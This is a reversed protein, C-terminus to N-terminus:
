TDMSSRTWKDHRIKSTHVYQLRSICRANVGLPLVRPDAHLVVVVRLLLGVHGASVHRALPHRGVHLGVVPHHEPVCELHLNSFDVGKIRQKPPPTTHIPTYSVSEDPRPDLCARLRPLWCRHHRRAQRGEGQPVRDGLGSHDPIDDRAVAGGKTCVQIHEPQEGEVRCWIFKMVIKCNM